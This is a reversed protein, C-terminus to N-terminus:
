DMWITGTSFAIPRPAMNPQVFFVCNSDKPGSCGIGEVLRM